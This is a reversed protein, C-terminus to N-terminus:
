GLIPPPATHNINFEVTGNIALIAADPASMGNAADNAAATGPFSHGNVDASYVYLNRDTAPTGGWADNVFQVDVTGPGQAGFDGTLTVDQVAHSAHSATATRTGGVQAGDVKVVFQADGNWADEALHLVITSPGVTGGGGGGGGGSSHFTLPGNVALIAGDSASMGNAASNQATTYSLTEGNATLSQVYLNRDTAATGGWADNIFNVAITHAGASLTGAISIDQWGGAAHSGTATQVGGFQAGDVTVTFQADGNWADESVRVTIPGGGTPPPPTTTGGSGFHITGNVALIAGDGVSMGNSAGNQGAHWDITNGNLTVSQVYLNRDTSPTGGWADNLFTIDISHAGTSFTGPLGIDQWQGAGHSATATQVGGVQAGDVAVVFQANGNWADESVRVSLNTGGPPPPPPPPAGGIVGHSDSAGFPTTDAGDPSSITQLGVAHANPDKSFARVYDIGMVGTEGAPNEPWGGVSLDLLLYMAKSTTSPTPRRESQVGDIYWTTFDPEWDVGYTHWTTHIDGGGVPHWAGFDATHDVTIQNQWAVNGAGDGRSNPAGFAELVDFEPPWSKDAPLMWVSSWMGPGSAVEVRAEFYGYTQAFSGETTILGSNYPQGAPNGGPAATIHLAGNALSFPNVGVTPDSYYQQDGNAGLFRGGFYLTTKYGSSGDPSWAFSNFEDDYTLKYASLDVM